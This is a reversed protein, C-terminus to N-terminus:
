SACNNLARSGATEPLGTLVHLRIRFEYRLRIHRALGWATALRSLWAQPSSSDRADSSLPALRVEEAVLLLWDSKLSSCSAPANGSASEFWQATLPKWPTSVAIYHYM